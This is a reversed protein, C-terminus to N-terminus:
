TAVILPTGSPEIGAQSLVVLVEEVVAELPVGREAYGNLGSVAAGRPLQQVEALYIAAAPPPWPGSHWIPIIHKAHSDALVLERRTWLSAGYSPTALVLFARCERVQHQISAPWSFGGLLTTPSAFVTYGRAQLAQQWQVASEGAESSRFSVMIDHGSSPYLLPAALGGEGLADDL